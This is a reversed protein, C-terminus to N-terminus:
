VSRALASPRPHTKCPPSRRRGHEAVPLAVALRAPALVRRKSGGQEHRLSAVFEHLFLSRVLGFRMKWREILTLPGRTAVAALDAEVVQVHQVLVGKLQQELWALVIEVSDWISPHGGPHDDNPPINLLWERWTGDILETFIFNDQPKFADELTRLPAGVPRNLEEYCRGMWTFANDYFGFWIHLGHEEIRQSQSANRGSAGKGGLRWGMQYVTVDFQGALEPRTLAMAAVMGSVGGGVVVVKKKGNM